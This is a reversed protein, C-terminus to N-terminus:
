LTQTNWAKVKFWEPHHLVLDSRGEPLGTLDHGPIVIAKNDLQLFARIQNRVHAARDPKSAIRQVDDGRLWPHHVAMDGALLVPGQPLMVLAGLDNHAHGGGLIIWISQDGFLDVARDFTAYAKTEKLSIGRWRNAPIDKLLAPQFGMDVSQDHKRAGAGAIFQAHSFASARGVHDFHLHSLLVTTVKKPSLGAAKMQQDLLRGPKSRTKFLMRVTFPLANEGKQAITEDLGCDFVVLGKTPHEIVFAPAPRWQSTKGVLLSSVWNVGTNFVHLKLGKVKPFKKATIGTWRPHVKPGKVVIPRYSIAWTAGLLLLVIIGLGGWLWRKKKGKPKQHIEEM